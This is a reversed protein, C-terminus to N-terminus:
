STAKSPSPTRTGTAPTDTGDPNVLAGRIFGRIVPVETPSVKRQRKGARPPLGDAPMTYKTGDKLHIRDGKRFM